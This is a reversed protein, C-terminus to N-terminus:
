GAIILRSLEPLEISSRSSIVIHCNGPLNKLLSNFAEKFTGSDEVFHYDEIIIIFYETVKAYLERIFKNVIKSTGSFVECDSLLYTEEQWSIDPFQYRISRSLGHFFIEPDRDYEDLTYWCVPINLDSAFDTLLITKGYGAPSSIVQVSSDINIQLLDTLRQRHIIDNPIIPPKFKNNFVVNIPSVKKDQQELM